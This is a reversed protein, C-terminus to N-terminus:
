FKLLVREGKLLERIKLPRPYSAAQDDALTQETIGEVSTSIMSSNGGSQGIADFRFAAEYIDRVKSVDRTLINNQQVVRVNKSRMFIFDNSEPVDPNKPFVPPNIILNGNVISKVKISYLRIGEEKPNIIINDFFRFAPGPSYRDDCFIGAAGTGIIVNGAVLNDALGLMTIGNGTGDKILNNFCRGGTGEGIQIGSNQMAQGATGYFKVDNNYVSAGEVASGLQIGDWGTLLVLNNYIDIGKIAHPMRVGCPQKVGNAYFSNGVYIGEGGTAHIFNDHISVDRMVFHDRTTSDDCTPDTKAIIGAFGVQAVEIHDIEFNTTLYDLSLGLNGGTLLIGHGGEAGTLRFYKSHLFKISYDRGEVVAKGGCSTIFIPSADTGRVNIFRLPGYKVGGQLCIVDGPKIKLKTGDINGANEPLIHTCTQCPGTLTLSDLLTADGAQEIGLESTSPSLEM